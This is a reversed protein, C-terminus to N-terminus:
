KGIEMLASQLCYIGKLLLSYVINFEKDIFHRTILFLVTRERKQLIAAQSIKGGRCLM